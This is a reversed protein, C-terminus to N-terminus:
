KSNQNVCKAVYLSNLHEIRRNISDENRGAQVENVIIGPWFFIGLAVNKGTLGSDDEVEEFQVGLETLEYKLEECNLDYDSIKVTQVTKNSVCASLILFALTTILINKM